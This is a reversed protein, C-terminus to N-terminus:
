EKSEFIVYLLALLSSIFAGASVDSLYHAGLSLRSFIIILAFILGLVGFFLRKKKLTEYFWTFAQLIIIMTMSLIAHGSPFSRFEGKDIGLNEIYYLHNSFPKYWPIFDIGEYGAIALRYRPRHFMNKCFQLIFFSLALLILLWIIKKTLNKDQSKKALTYGGFLMLPNMVLFIGIIVPINRNLTPFIYGLSDKDVLSGAGVFGVATALFLCLACLLIRIPKKKASHLIRECLAGFFLVAFAFFPFVGTASVYKVFLNPSYLAKAIAEDHFTGVIFLLGFALLLFLHFIIFQANNQKSSNTM